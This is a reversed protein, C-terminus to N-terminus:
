RLPCRGFQARPHLEVRLRASGRHVVIQRLIVVAGTKAPLALAERCEVIGDNTVWRSRWILTGPEYYGGWVFRQAPTVAYHGRGDM